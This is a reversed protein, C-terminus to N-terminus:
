NIAPCKNPDTYWLCRKCQQCPVIQSGHKAKDAWDPDVLLGRGVAVMDALNNEILYEAQQPTRIGNVVIVPINVRSKIQTGCYVISNEPFGEPVEPQPYDPSSIGSSVHLLDVGAAELIKAIQIGNELTPENGGMRYGIIFDEDVMDKLQQIIEVVFRMRNELSGGYQDTRRNTIPSAFQSILYGHAGHFEIGDFGAEQARQAAKIFDNQIAKIEEITLERVPRDTDDSHQSPAFAVEAVNRPTKLGAHHIQILVTAGYNHCVRVLQELGKIHDDSWIGLQDSSLRGDRTVCAAEVVILGTGGKARAEYHRVHKETVFGDDGACGFYVMPPMVIRNKIEKNKIKIPSFLHAM